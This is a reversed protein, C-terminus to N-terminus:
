QARPEVSTFRAPSTSATQALARVRNPLATDISKAFRGLPIKWFFLWAAPTIILSSSIFATFYPPLWCPCTVTVTPKVPARVIRARHALVLTEAEIQLVGVTAQRAESQDPRERL